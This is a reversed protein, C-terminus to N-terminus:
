HGFACYVELWRERAILVEAERHPPRFFEYLSCMMAALQRVKTRMPTKRLEAVERRNAANQGARWARVQEANMGTKSM